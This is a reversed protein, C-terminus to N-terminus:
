KEVGHYTNIWQEMHQDLIRLAKHLSAIHAESEWVLGDSDFARLMSQYPESPGLEIWGYNRVWRTVHPYASDFPPTTSIAYLM